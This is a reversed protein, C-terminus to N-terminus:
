TLCFLNVFFHPSMLSKLRVLPLYGSQANLLAKANLVAECPLPRPALTICKDTVKAVNSTTAPFTLKEALKSVLDALEHATTRTKEATTKMKSVKDMRQGMETEFISYDQLLLTDVEDQTKHYINVLDGISRKTYPLVDAIGAYTYLNAVVAFGAAVTMVVCCAGLTLFCVCRWCRDHDGEEVKSDGGCAGCCCRCTLLCCGFVPFVIALALGLSIASILRPYERLAAPVNQKLYVAPKRVAQESLAVSAIKPVPILIRGVAEVAQYLFGLVGDGKKVPPQFTYTNSVAPEYKISDVPRLCAEEACSTPEMSVLLLLLVFSLFHPRPSSARGGAMTLRPPELLLAPFGGIDPGRQDVPHCGRNYESLGGPRHVAGTIFPSQPDRKASRVSGPQPIAFPAPMSTADSQGSDWHSGRHM